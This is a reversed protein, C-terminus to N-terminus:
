KKLPMQKNLSCCDPANGGFAKENERALKELAENIRRLIRKLM